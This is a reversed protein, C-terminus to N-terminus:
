YTLINGTQAGPRKGSEKETEKGSEKFRRNNRQGSLLRLEQLYYSCSM